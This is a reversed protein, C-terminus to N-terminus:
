QIPRNENQEEGFYEKLLEMKNEYEALEKTLKNITTKNKALKRNIAKYKNELDEIACEIDYLECLLSGDFNEISIIKLNLDDIKEKLEKITM